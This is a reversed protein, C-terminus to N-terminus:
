CHFKHNQFSVYCRLCHMMGKSNVNVLIDYCMVMAREKYTLTKYYLTINQPWFHYASAITKSMLTTRAQILM